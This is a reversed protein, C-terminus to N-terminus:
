RGLMGDDYLVTCVKDIITYGGLGKVYTKSPDQAAKNDVALYTHLLAQFDFSSSGTNDILLTNTMETGTIRIEYTLLCATGDTAAQSVSWPNHDGM